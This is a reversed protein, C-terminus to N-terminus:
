GRKMAYMAQDARRLLEDPTDGDAPYFSAGFSVSVARGGEYPEVLTRELRDRVLEFVTRGDGDLDALVLLFEDGGQRAVLADATAGRGLADTDRVARQLRRAVERLVADGADHGNEDNIAKLGDVDFFIVAIASSQRRARALALSLHEELLRRNALETLPDHLADHALSEERRSRETIDLALGCVGWPEGTDALMPFRLTQFVQGDHEEEGLVVGRRAVTEADAERRARAADAPLLEEYTRGVIQERTGGLIDALRSTAFVMRGDLDSLYGIVGPDGLLARLHRSFQSFAERVNPTTALETLTCVAGGDSLPRARVWLWRADVQVLARAPAGTGLVRAVPGNRRSVRSGDKLFMDPFRGDRVGLM